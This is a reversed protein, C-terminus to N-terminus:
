ICKESPAKLTLIINLLLLNYYTLLGQRIRPDMPSCPIRFGRGQYKVFGFPKKAINTRTGKFTVFSGLWCEINPWRRGALLVGNLHFPTEIIAGSQKLPM